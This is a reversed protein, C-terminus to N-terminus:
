FEDSLDRWEPNMEEIERLKWLRKWKKMQKEREIASEITDHIEYWVLKSVGYKKTFGEVVKQKHEFLTTGWCQYECSPTSGRQAGM